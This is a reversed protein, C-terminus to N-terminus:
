LVADSALSADTKLRDAFRRWEDASFRLIPGQSDKTDRVMVRSDHDAVEVCNGGSQGSYSSKRWKM